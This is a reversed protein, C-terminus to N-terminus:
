EKDLVAIADVLLKSVRSYSDPSESPLTRLITLMRAGTLATLVARYRKPPLTEIQGTVVSLEAILSAEPESLPEEISPQIPDDCRAEIMVNLNQLLSGAQARARAERQNRYRWDRLIPTLAVIVAFLTIWAAVAQSSLNEMLGFKAGVLVGVVFAMAPILLLKTM